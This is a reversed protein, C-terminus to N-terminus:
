TTIKFHTVYCDNKYAFPPMTIWHSVICCHSHNFEKEVYFYSSRLHQASWFSGSRFLFIGYWEMQMFIFNLFLCLQDVGGFGAGLFCKNSKLGWLALYLLIVYYTPKQGKSISSQERLTKDSQIIFENCFPAYGPVCSPIWVLRHGELLSVYTANAM